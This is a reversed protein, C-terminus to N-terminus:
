GGYASEVKNAVDRYGYDQEYIQKFSNLSEEKKDMLECILGKEYLVQKKTDDMVSLDVLADDLQKVALDYMNKAKFTQALLLLSKIKIHPNRTAQQLHPIADSFEGKDFLASGLELRLNPDTPNAEVRAKCDGVISEQRNSKLLNFNKQIEEDDPQAKAERELVRFKEDESDKLMKAAKNKLSIDNDSLQHAWSYFVHSDEFYGLEEYLAGIKKVVEIDNQDAKYQKMLVRLRERLQERTMGKIDEKQLELTESEDKKGIEYQEGDEKRAKLMSSRASADKAGKQADMDTPDRAVIDSYVAVAKEPLDRALYHEALKHLLQTNSPAGTRVTELAFSATDLMNLLMASEFLLENFGPNYPDKALEVEIMVLAEVPDSKMTSRVKSVSFSANSGLFSTMTSTKKSKNNVGGSYSASKRALKRGDIFGPSEKVIAQCLSVAYDFNDLEVASLARLWFGKMKKSLAKETVEEIKDAM